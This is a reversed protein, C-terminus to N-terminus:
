PREREAHRAPVEFVAASADCDGEFQWQKGDYYLAGITVNGPAM